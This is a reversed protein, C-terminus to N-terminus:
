LALALHDGRAAAAADHRRYPQGRAALRGKRKEMFRQLSAKRAVPLDASEGGAAATSALDDRPVGRSSAALRLLAAARDAPCEDLVLVRGGYFITMQAAASSAAAGGGEEEREDGAVDAGPMLPLPRVAAAAAAATRARHVSDAARVYQSLAGCAAAFRSTAAAAAAEAAM